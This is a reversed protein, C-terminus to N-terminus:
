VLRVSYNCSHRFYMQLMKVCLMLQVVTHKTQWGFKLHRNHTCGCGASLSSFTGPLPPIPSFVNPIRGYYTPINKLRCPTSINYSVWHLESVEFMNSPESKVEEVVVAVIKLCNSQSIPYTRCMQNASLYILTATSSNSALDSGRWYEGSYM